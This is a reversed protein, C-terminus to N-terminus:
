LIYINDYEKSAYYHQSNTCINTRGLSKTYPVNMTVNMVQMTFFFFFVNIIIIIIVFSAIM